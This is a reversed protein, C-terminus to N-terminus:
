EVTKLVDEITCNKLVDCIKLLTSTKVSVKGEEYHNVMIPTVNILHALEIRKIGALERYKKINHGITKNLVAQEPSIAKMM